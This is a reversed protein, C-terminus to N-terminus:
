CEKDKEADDECDEESLTIKVSWSINSDISSTLSSPRGARQRRGSSILKRSNSKMLLSKRREVGVGLLRRDHGYFLSKAINSYEHQIIEDQVLPKFQPDSSTISNWDIDDFYLQNKIEEVNFSGLRNQPKRELLGSTLKALSESKEQLLSLDITSSLINEFIDEKNIGRFQVSM